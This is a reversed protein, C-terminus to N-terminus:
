DDEDKDKKPRPVEVKQSASGFNQTWFDDVRGVGIETHRAGLMNRHHGSSSFWQSFAGRGTNSGRAINESVGGPYGAIKARKGPTRHKDHEAGPLPCNHAFFGNEKMESSHARALSDSESALDRREQPDATLDYLETGRGMSRVVKWPGLKMGRDGDARSSAFYIARRETWRGDDTGDLLGALSRGQFDTPIPIGALELVTPAVDLLAVSATVVRGAQRREPLRFLLPM